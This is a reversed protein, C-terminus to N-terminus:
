RYYSANQLKSVQHTGEKTAQSTTNERNLKHNRVSVLVTAVQWAARKINNKGIRTFSM